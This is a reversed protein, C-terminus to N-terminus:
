LRVRYDDRTIQSGWCSVIVPDHLKSVRVEGEDFSVFHELVEQIGRMWVIAALRLKELREAERALVRFHQGASQKGDGLSPFDHLHDLRSVTLFMNDISSYRRVSLLTAPAHHPRDPDDSLTRIRRAQYSGVRAPLSGEDHNSFVFPDDQSSRDGLFAQLNAVHPRHDMDVGVTLSEFDLESSEVAVGGRHCGNLGGANSGHGTALDGVRAFHRSTSDM